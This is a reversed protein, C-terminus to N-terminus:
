NDKNKLFVKNSIRDLEGRLMAIHILCKTLKITKEECEETKLASLSAFKQLKELLAKREDCYFNNDELCKKLEKELEECKLSSFEIKQSLHINKQFESKEKSIELFNKKEKDTEMKEVLNKLEKSYELLRSNEEELLNYENELKMYNYSIDKFNKQIKGLKEDNESKESKLYNIEEELNNKEAKLSNSEAELNEKETKLSNLEKELNRKETEISKLKEALNNKETKLKNLKEKLNTKETKILNLEEKLNKKETKIFNLEEKLNKEETKLHNIEEKLSTNETNILNLEKKLNKIESNFKELKEHNGSKETEIFYLKQTLNKLESDLDRNKGEKEKNQNKLNKNENSIQDKETKEYIIEKRLEKITIQLEKNEKKLNEIKIFFDKKLSEIKIKEKNQFEIDSKLLTETNSKLLNEIKQLLEENENTLKEIKDKSNKKGQQLNEINIKQNKILKEFKEIMEKNKNNEEELDENIKSKISRIDKDNKVHLKILEAKLNIINQINTKKQIEYKEIQKEFIELKKECVIKEKELTDIKKSNESILKNKLRLFIELIIKKENKDKELDKLNLDKFIELDLIEKLFFKSNIIKDPSKNKDMKESLVHHSLKLSLTRNDNRLSVAEDKYKQINFSEIKLKKKVIESDNLLRKLNENKNEIKMIKELMMKNKNKFVLFLEGFLIKLDEKKEVNEFINELDIFDDEIFVSKEDNDYEEDCLSQFTKKSFNSNYTLNSENQLFSSNNNEELNNINESNDFNQLSEINNNKESNESNNIKQTKKILESKKIKSINILSIESLKETLKINESNLKESFVQLCNLDEKLNKKEKNLLNYKQVLGEHEKTLSFINKKIENKFEQYKFIKQNKDEVENRLNEYKEKLKEFELNENKLKEFDKKLKEFDENNFDFSQHIKNNESDDNNETKDVRASAKMLSNPNYNIEDCLEEIKKEEYDKEFNKSKFFKDILFDIDKLSELLNDFDFIESNKTLSELIKNRKSFADFDLKKLILNVKEFVNDLGNQYHGLNKLNDKNRKDIILYDQTIKNLNLLFLEFQKNIDNLIDEMNIKERKEDELNILSILNDYFEKLYESLYNIKDYNELNNDNKISFIKKQILKKLNEINEFNENETPSINLYTIIIDTLHIYKEKYIKFNQSIKLKKTIEDNEEELIEFNKQINKIKQTLLKIENKYNKEKEKSIRKQENKLFILEEKLNNNKTKLIESEYM